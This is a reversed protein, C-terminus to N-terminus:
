LMIGVKPMLIPKGLEATLEQHAQEFYVLALDIEELNSVMPLLVHLQDSDSAAQLMARLQVLFLEPHDLSLRIGRWGLFPNDEVIPFYDLPKDGGVDL